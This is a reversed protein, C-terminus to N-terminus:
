KSRLTKTSAPVSEPRLGKLLVGFAKEGEAVLDFGGDALCWAHTIGGVCRLVMNTVEDTSLDNRLCGERQADKVLSLAIKYLARDEAAYTPGRKRFTLRARYSVQLVDVGMRTSYDLAKKGLLWLKEVPDSIAALENAVYVDYTEDIKSFLDVIVQEKSRFYVYFAGKSVGAKKCIEDVTVRDFGDRSFLRLATRNIRQRTAIGQKKRDTLNPKYL